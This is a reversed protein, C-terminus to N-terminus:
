IGKSNHTIPITNSSPFSIIQRGRNLDNCHVREPKLKCMKESIENFNMDSNNIVNPNLGPILTNTYYM